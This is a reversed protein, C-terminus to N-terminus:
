VVRFAVLPFGLQYKFVKVWAEKTYHAKWLGTDSDNSMVNEIGWIGVHGHPAGKASQGTVAISIDGPQIQEHPIEEFRSDSLLHAYLMSTGLVGPVIDEGFAERYVGRLSEVCGLRDPANDQPSMDRGICAKSVRYLIERNSEKVEVPVIPDNDQSPMSDPYLLSMLHDILALIKRIM